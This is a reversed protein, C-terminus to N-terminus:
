ELLSSLPSLTRVEQDFSARLQLVTADLPARHIEATDHPQMVEALRSTYLRYVTGPRVRATRGARQTASAKSVWTKLLRTVKHQEDYQIQKHTGLDIVIDVDPLTISSEAANTALVVKTVHPPAPEFIALQEEFPLDSHIPLTKCGGVKDLDVTLTEIDSM